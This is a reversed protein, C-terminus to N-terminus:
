LMTIVLKWCAQKGYYQSGYLDHLIGGIEGGDVWDVGNDKTDDDKVTHDEGLAM